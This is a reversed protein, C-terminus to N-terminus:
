INVFWNSWYKTRNWTIFYIWQLRIKSIKFTRCIVDFITSQLLMYTLFWIKCTVLTFNTAFWKFIFQHFIEMFANMKKLKRGLITFIIQIGSIIQCSLWFRSVLGVKLFTQLWTFLCNIYKRPRSFKNHEDEYLKNQYEPFLCNM